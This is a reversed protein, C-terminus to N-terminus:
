LMDLATRYTKESVKAKNAIRALYKNSDVLPLRLELNDVLLRYCRGAFIDHTNAAVSLEELTAPGVPGQM